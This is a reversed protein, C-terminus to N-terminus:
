RRNQQTESQEMNGPKQQKRTYATTHSTNCFHLGKQGHARLITSDNARHSEGNPMYNNKSLTTGSRSSRSDPVERMDKEVLAGRARMGGEARM